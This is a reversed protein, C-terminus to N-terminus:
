IYKFSVVKIVVWALVIFGITLFLKPLVELFQNWLDQIFTLYNIKKCEKQLTMVHVHWFHLCTVNAALTTFSVLQYPMCTYPWKPLQPARSCLSTQVLSLLIKIKVLFQDNVPGDFCKGGLFTNAVVM